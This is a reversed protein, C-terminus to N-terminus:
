DMRWFQLWEWWPKKARLTNVRAGESQRRRSGLVINFYNPRDKSDLDVRLLVYNIGQGRKWYAVRLLRSAGAEKVADHLWRPLPTKKGEEYCIVQNVEPAGLEAQIEAVLALFRNGMNEEVNQSAYHAQDMVHERSGGVEAEQLLNDLINIPTGM